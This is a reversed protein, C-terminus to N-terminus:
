LLFFGDEIARVLLDAKTPVPRGVQAYKGRIRRIYMDVTHASIGMRRAVSAKTMSQLWWMLVMGEQDSLQPAGGAPVPVDVVSPRTSEPRNEAAAVIARILPLRDQNETVVALAGAQLIARTVARSVPPCLAVVRVGTSALAMISALAGVRAWGPALVLVDAEGPPAGAELTVLRPDPALWVRLGEAMVPPLDSVGVRIPTVVSNTAIV